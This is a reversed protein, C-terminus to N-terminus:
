KDGKTNIAIYTNAMDESGIKYGNALGLIYSVYCSAIFFIVVPIIIETM